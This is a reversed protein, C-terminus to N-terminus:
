LNGFSDSIEEQLPEFREATDLITNMAAEFQQIVLDLRVLKQRENKQEESKIGLPPHRTIRKYEIVNEKESKVSFYRLGSKGARCEYVFIQFDPENSLANYDLIFPFPSISKESNRFSLAYTISPKPDYMLMRLHGGSSESSKNGLINIDKVYHPNTHRVEEYEVRRMAVLEYDAFFRFTKLVEALAIEATHCHGLGYSENNQNIAELEELTCCAKNFAGASDTLQTTDGLESESLPYPLHNAAFLGLLTHLLRRLESLKLPRKSSFLKRIAEQGANLELNQIRSDWLKSLFLFNMLQLSLRYAGFCHHMYESIKIEMSKNPDNGISFLRRLEWGILWVFQKELIGQAEKLHSRVCEWNEKDEDPLSDLFEGVEPKEWLLPILEKALVANFVRGSVVVGFNAESIHAINYIKDAYQVKQVQLTALLAKLEAFENQIERLDGNVSVTITSGTVNQIVVNQHGQIHTENSM